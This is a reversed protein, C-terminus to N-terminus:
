ACVVETGGSLLLAQVIQLEYTYKEFENELIGEWELMFSRNLKKDTILRIKIHDCCVKNMAMYVKLKQVNSSMSSKTMDFDVCMAKPLGILNYIKM